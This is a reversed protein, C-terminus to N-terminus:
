SVGADPQHSRAFADADHERSHLRDFNSVGDDGYVVAEGDILFRSARLKRASHTIWPYRETWDFGRRTFLRVREGDRWVMLRYGDYKIEHIWATGVPAKDALTPICPEVFGAPRFAPRSPPSWDM